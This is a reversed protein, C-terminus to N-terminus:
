KETGERVKKELKYAQNLYTWALLQIVINSANLYNESRMSGYLAIILYLVIFWYLWKM